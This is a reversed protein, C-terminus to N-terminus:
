DKHLIVLHYCGRDWSITPRSQVDSVYLQKLVGDTNIVAWFLWLVVHHYYYFLVDWLPFGRSQQIVVSIVVCGFVCKVNQLSAPSNSYVIVCSWILKCGGAEMWTCLLYNIHGNKAGKLEEEERSTDSEVRM